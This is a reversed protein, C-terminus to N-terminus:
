GLHIIIGQFYDAQEKNDFKLQIKGNVKAGEKILNIREQKSHHNFIIKHTAFYEDDVLVDVSNDGPMYSYYIGLIGEIPQMNAEYGVESIREFEDKGIFQLNDYHVVEENVVNVSEVYAELKRDNVDLKMDSEILNRVADFYIEKGLYNPHKGDSTLEEYAYRSEEFAQITDVVAVHYHEALAQIIKIKNTYERQSSELISIMACEPYRNRIARYISEYYLSFGEEKDNQGYCVIALDYNVGDDLMLTRVNGAYSANGGMSVNTLLVRTNYKIELHEKLQGAWSESDEGKGISDGVILLNLEEDKMIRRRVKAAGM